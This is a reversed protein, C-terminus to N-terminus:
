GLRGLGNNDNNVPTFFKSLINFNYLLALDLRPSIKDAKSIASKSAILVVTSFRFKGYTIQRCQRGSPNNNKLSKIIYLFFIFVEFMVSIWDCIIRKIHQYLSVTTVFAVVVLFQHFKKGLFHFCTKYQISGHCRLWSFHLYASIKHRLQYM